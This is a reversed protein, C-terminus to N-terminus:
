GGAVRFRRGVRLAGFIERGPRRDADAGGRDDGGQKVGVAVAASTWRGIMPRAALQKGGRGRIDEVGPRGGSPSTVIPVIRFSVSAGASAASRAAGAAALGGPPPPPPPAAGLM